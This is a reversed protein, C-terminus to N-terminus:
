PAYRIRVSDGVFADPLFISRWMYAPRERLLAAIIAVDRVTIIVRNDAARVSGEITKPCMLIHGGSDCQRLSLRKVVAELSGRANAADPSAGDVSAIAAFGHSGSVGFRWNYFPFGSSTAKGPATWSAAARATVPFVVTLAGDAVIAEDDRSLQLASQRACGLWPLFLLLLAQNRM